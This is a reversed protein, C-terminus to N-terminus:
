YVDKDIEKIIEDVYKRVYKPNYTKAAFMGQIVAAAFYDRRSLVYPQEETLYNLDLSLEESEKYFNEDSILEEYTKM